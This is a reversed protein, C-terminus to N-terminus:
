KRRRLFLGGLGLFAMTMPEPIMFGQIDVKNNEMDTVYSNLAPVMPHYPPTVSFPLTPLTPVTLTFTVLDGTVGAESEAGPALNGSWGGLTTATNS